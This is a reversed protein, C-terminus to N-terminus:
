FTESLFCLFSLDIMLKCVFIVGFISWLHQIFARLPGPFAYELTQYLAQFLIAGHGGFLVFDRGSWFKADMFLFSSSFLYAWVKWGLGLFLAGGFYPPRIQFFFGLLLIEFRDVVWWFLFFDGWVWIPFFIRMFLVWFVGFFTDWWDFVGGRFGVVWFRWKVSVTKWM